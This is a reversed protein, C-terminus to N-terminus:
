ALAVALKAAIREALAAIVAAFPTGNALATAEALLTRAADGAAALASDIAPPTGPPEGAAAQARALRSALATRAGAPVAALHLAIVINPAGRAFDEALDEVDDCLQYATGLRTAAEAASAVVAAPLGAALAAARIPLAAMAGAKGRALQLARAPTMAPWLGPDLEDAQGRVVEALGRAFPGLLAPAGAEALQAFAAFLLHDGLCVAAAVGFRAAISASGRRTVAGDQVDDHVLSAQHVLECAAAIAVTAETDLGAARGAAVAMRARWASGGSDLHHAAWTGIVSGSAAERRIRAQVAAGLAEEDPVSGSAAAAPAALVPGGRWALRRPARRPRSLVIPAALAAGTPLPAATTSARM